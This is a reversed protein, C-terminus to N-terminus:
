TRFVTSTAHRSFRLSHRRHSRMSQKLRAHSSWTRPDRFKRPRGDSIEYFVVSKGTPVQTASLSIADVLGNALNVHMQDWDIADELM